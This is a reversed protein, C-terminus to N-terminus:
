KGNKWKILFVILEELYKLYWFFFVLSFIGWLYQSLVMHKSCSTAFIISVHYIFFCPFYFMIHCFYYICSLYFFKFFLAHYPLFLLYMISLSVQYISCSIAFIISVHYLLFSSFYSCVSFIFFNNLPVHMYLIMFLTKEFFFFCERTFTFYDVTNEKFPLQLLVRLSLQSIWTSPFIVFLMM